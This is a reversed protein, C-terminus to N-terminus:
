VMCVNWPSATCAVSSRTTLAEAYLMCALLPMVALCPGLYQGILQNLTSVSTPMGVQDSSDNHWPQAEHTAYLRTTPQLPDLGIDKIQLFM